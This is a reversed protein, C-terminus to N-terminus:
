NYLAKEWEDLIVMEWKPLEPTVYTVSKGYVSFSKGSFKNIAEEEGKKLCINLFTHMEEWSTPGIFLSEIIKGKIPTGIVVDKIRKLLSVAEEFTMGRIKLCLYSFSIM